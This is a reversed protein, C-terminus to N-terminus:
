IIYTGMYLNCSWRFLVSFERFFNGLAGKLLGWPRDDVGAVVARVVRLPTRGVWVLTGGLLLELLGALLLLYGALLLFGVALLWLSVALLGGPVAPLLIGAALLLLCSALLRGPVALLLLCSALLWAWVALLELSVALLECVGFSLGIDVGRLGTEVLSLLGPVM